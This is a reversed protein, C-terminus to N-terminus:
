KGEELEKIKNDILDALIRKDEEQHDLILEKEKKSLECESFFIMKSSCFNEKVEKLCEIAKPTQLCKEIPKNNLVYIKIVDDPFLDGRTTKIKCKTFGTVTAQKLIKRVTSSGTLTNQNILVNDGISLDNNLFDKM